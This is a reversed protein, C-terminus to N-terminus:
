VWLYMSKRFRAVRPQPAVVRRSLMQHSCFREELRGSVPRPTHSAAGCPGLAKTAACAGAGAGSSRRPAWPALARCSGWFSM